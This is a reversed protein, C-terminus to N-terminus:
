KYVRIVQLGATAGTNSPRQVFRHAVVKLNLVHLKIAPRLVPILIQLLVRIRIHWQQFNRHFVAGAVSVHQCCEREGRRLHPGERLTLLRTFYGSDKHDATSDSNQPRDSGHLAPRYRRVPM